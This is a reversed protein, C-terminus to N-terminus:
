AGCRAVTSVNCLYANGQAPSCSYKRAATDVMPCAARFRNPISDTLPIQTDDSSAVTSGSARSSAALKKGFTRLSFTTEIENRDTFSLVSVIGVVVVFITLILLQSRQRKVVHRTARM